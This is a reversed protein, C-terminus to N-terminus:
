LVDCGGRSLAIAVAPSVHSIASDATDTTTRTARSAACLDVPETASPRQQPAAASGASPLHDAKGGLQAQQNQDTENGAEDRGPAM